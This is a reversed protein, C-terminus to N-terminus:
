GTNDLSGFIAFTTATLDNGNGFGAMKDEDDEVDVFGESVFSNNLVFEFAETDANVLVRWVNDELLFVFTADANGIGNRQGMNAM